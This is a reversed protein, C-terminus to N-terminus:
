DLENESALEKITTLLAPIMQKKRSVIGPLVAMGDKVDVHFAKRIVKDANKGNLLLETTSTRVDTFMYFVFRLGQKERATELYPGVLKESAKRNKETMYSGQGVGFQIDATGFVKYDGNFIEEATKGTVDGGAGFMADGYEEIDVGAIEALEKAAAKDFMTCTPSRFMLTDSLIASLM